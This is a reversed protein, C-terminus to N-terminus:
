KRRFIFFISIVFLVLYYFISFIQSFWRMLTKLRKVLKAIFFYVPYLFENYHKKIKNKYKKINPDNKYKRIYYETDFPIKASPDCYKKYDKVYVNYRIIGDFVHNPVNYIRKYMKKYYDKLILIQSQKYDLIIFNNMIIQESFENDIHAYDLCDKMKIKDSFKQKAFEIGMYQEAPFKWLRDNFWPIMYQNTKKKYEFYRAFSHLEPIPMSFYLKIDEALGFMFWDSIHFPTYHTANNEREFKISYLSSVVIKQKAIIYNEDRKQFKNFYFIFGLGRIELDSRLKLVYKRSTKLLGQKTSVLQRNLNYPITKQPNWFEFGPDDNEVLVDYDLESLDSGKWTSLIIEAQPLYKRISRLCKPTNVKDIAGQVVVSIDKSEIKM